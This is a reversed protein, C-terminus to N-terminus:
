IRTSLYYVLEEQGKSGLYNYKRGYHYFAYQFLMILGVTLIGVIWTYTQLGETPRLSTVAYRLAVLSCVLLILLLAASAKTYTHISDVYEQEREQLTLYVSRLWNRYPCIPTVDFTTDLNSAIDSIGGDIASQVTPVVNTYFLYVEYITLVTSVLIVCFLGRLIQVRTENSSSM